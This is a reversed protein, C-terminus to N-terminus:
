ESYAVAEGIAVEIEEEFDDPDSGGDRLLSECWERVLRWPNADQAGNTDSRWVSGTWEVGTDHVEGFLKVKIGM